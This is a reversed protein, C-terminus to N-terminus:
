EKISSDIENENFELYKQVKAEKGCFVCKM